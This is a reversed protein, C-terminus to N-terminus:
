NLSDVVAQTVAAFANLCRSVGYTHTFLHVSDTPWFPADGAGDRSSVAQLPQGVGHVAKHLRVRIDLWGHRLDLRRSELLQLLVLLESQATARAATSRPQRRRLQAATAKTMDMVTQMIQLARPRSTCLEHFPACTHSTAPSPTM